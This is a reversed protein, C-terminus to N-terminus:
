QKLFEATETYGNEEAKMLATVGDEMKANVNAGNDLLVKIVETQGNSAAMMLATCGKVDNVSATANVDAGNDLLDDVIETYGRVNCFDLTSCIRPTWPHLRLVKSRVRPLL